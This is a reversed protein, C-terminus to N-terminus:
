SCRSLVQAVDMIDLFGDGNLDYKAPIPPNAQRLQTYYQAIEAYAVSCAVGTPWPEGEFRCTAPDWM